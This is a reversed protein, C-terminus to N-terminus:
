SFTFSESWFPTSGVKPATRAVMDRAWVLECFYPRAKGTTPDRDRDLTTHRASMSGTSSVQSTSAFVATSSRTATRLTKEESSTSRISTFSSTPDFRRGGGSNRKEKGERVSHKESLEALGRGELVSIDLSRWVRMKEAHSGREDTTLAATASGLLKTAKTYLTRTEDVAYCKCVVLWAQLMGLTPMLVYIPDTPPDPLLEHLEKDPQAATAASSPRSSPSFSRDRHIGACHPKGFVSPHTIRFDSRRLRPLYIRYVM